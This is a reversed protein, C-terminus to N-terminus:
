ALMFNGKFVHKWPVIIKNKTDRQSVPVLKNVKEENHYISTTKSRHPKNSVNQKSQEMTYM